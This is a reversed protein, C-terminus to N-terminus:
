RTNVFDLALPDAQDGALEIHRQYADLAETDRGQAALAQGLILWGQPRTGAYPHETVLRADAEAEPYREELLYLTARPLRLEVTYPYRQIYGTYTAIAADTQGQRLYIQAIRAYVTNDHRGHKLVESYSILAAADDELLEYEAHGRWLYAETDAPNIELARNFNSIAISPARRYYGSMGLAFYYRAQDPNLSLATFLEEEADFPSPTVLLLKAQQYHWEATQQDAVSVQAEPTAFNGCGTLLLIIVPLLGRWCNNIKM